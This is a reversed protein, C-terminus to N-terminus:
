AKSAFFNILVFNGLCNKANGVREFTCLIPAALRDQQNLIYCEHLKKNYRESEMDENAFSKVTKINRVSESAM